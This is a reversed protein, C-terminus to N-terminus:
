EMQQRDLRQEIDDFHRDHERLKEYVQAYGELSAKIHPRIENEIITEIKLNSSELKTLRKGTDEKFDHMEGKFDHMEDRFDHLKDKLGILETYMQSIIEYAKDEM